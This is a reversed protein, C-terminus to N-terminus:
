EKGILIQGIGVHATVVVDPAGEGFTEVTSIDSGDRAGPTTDGFPDSGSADADLPRSTQDRAIDGVGVSSRVQVTLDDPVRVKVEGIGVKAEVQAPTAPDNPLQRLDLAGSGVGLRYKANADDASPRWVRDGVGGGFDVDPLVASAWTTLALLVAVFATLGTRFGAVGLGVLALGFVGLAVALAVTEESGAWSGNDHLWLTLGYAALALGGVLVAGIFGASRRKPPPPSQPPRPAIGAPPPTQPPPGYAPGAPPPGYPGAPTGTAAAETPATGAPAPPAAYTMTPDQGPAWPPTPASTSSPNARNASWQEAREGLEVSAAAVRDSAQQTWQAAQGAAHRVQGPQRNRTVLWVVLGVPLLVWWFWAFGGNDGAFGLGGFLTLAIVVLLIIGLVDGGRVAREAVIEGKDNPIFAWAVLYITFGLGGLIVLLVVAARIVIPDVDLRRAIGSCVGAIWKDDGDRRLDISRLWGFFRDLGSTNDTPAATPGPNQTMDDM